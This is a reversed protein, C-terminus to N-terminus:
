VLGQQADVRVWASGHKWRIIPAKRLTEFSWRSWVHEWTNMEKAWYVWITSMRTKPTPALVRNLRLYALCASEPSLVTQHFEWENMMPCLFKQRSDLCEQNVTTGVSHICAGSHFWQRLENIPIYDIRQLQDQTWNIRWARDIINSQVQREIRLNRWSFIMSRMRFCHKLFM